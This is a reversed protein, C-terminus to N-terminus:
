EWRKLLMGQSSVRLFMSITWWRSIDTCPGRHIRTRPLGEHPLPIRRDTSTRSPQHRAREQQRRKRWGSFSLYDESQYCLSQQSQGGEWPAIWCQHPTAIPQHLLAKEQRPGAWSHPICNTMQSLIDFLPECFTPVFESPTYRDHWVVQKHTQDELAWPLDM